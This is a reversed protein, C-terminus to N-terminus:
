TCWCSDLQFIIRLTSERLVNEIILTGNAL